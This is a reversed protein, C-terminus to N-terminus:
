CDSALKTIQVVLDPHKRLNHIFVKSKKEKILKELKLANEKSTCPISLFLEWPIGKATFKSPDIPHNHHIIRKELDETM